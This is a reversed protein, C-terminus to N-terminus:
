RDDRSRRLTTVAFSTGIAAYVVAMAGKSLVFEWGPTLRKPTVTYDVIAALAAIGAGRGLATSPARSPRFAFWSEHFLAWFVTAGFHTAAGIVTHDIDADPFSAADDGYLWHSTANLPQAAGKGEARAVIALAAASALTAVTGSFLASRVIDKARPQPYPRSAM